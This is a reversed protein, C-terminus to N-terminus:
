LNLRLLVEAYLDILSNSDDNCEVTLTTELIDVEVPTEELVGEVDSVFELLEKLTDGDYLSFVRSRYYRNDSFVYVLIHEVNKEKRANELVLTINSIDDGSFVM